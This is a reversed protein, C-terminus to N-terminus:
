VKADCLIPANPSFPKCNAIPCIVYRSHAFVAMEGKATVIDLLFHIRRFQRLYNALAQPKMQM